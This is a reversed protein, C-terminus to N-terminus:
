KIEQNLCFIHALTEQFGGKSVKYLFQQNLDKFFNQTREQAEKPSEEASTTLNM